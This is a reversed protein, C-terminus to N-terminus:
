KRSKDASTYFPILATLIDSEIGSVHIDLFTKLTQEEAASIDRLRPLMNKFKGKSSPNFLTSEPNEIERILDAISCGGQLFVLISQLESISFKNTLETM